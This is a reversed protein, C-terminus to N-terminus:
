LMGGEHARVVRSVTMTHIGLFDAIATMTYGHALYATAIVANRTPTDKVDVDDFLDGLAPRGLFRQERPVDGLDLRSSLRARCRAVFAESGLLLGAVLGKWPASGGLGERVHKRYERQAEPRCSGFQLLVWDTSLLDPAKTLGVTARYSSWRWQGPRRVVGARVPNLVVYRCVELLHSEKEIVIAKYRGQFVHGVKGHLRNYKQTYSGNLQRMGRSLNPDPTEILLHYHNGMLCYGHCIWNFREVVSELVALFAQRDGDDEYIRERRDGRSTVHYLAGAYEIRLPRAM